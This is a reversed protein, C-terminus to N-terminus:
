EVLGVIQRSKLGIVTLGVIPFAPEVALYNSDASWSLKEMKPPGFIDEELGEVKLSVSFLKLGTNLSWFGVTMGGDICAITSGDPSSEPQSISGPQARELVRREKDRNSMFVVCDEDKLLYWWGDTLHGWGLVEESNLATIAGSHQGNDFGFQRFGERKQVLLQGGTTAWQFGIIDCDGGWSNDNM